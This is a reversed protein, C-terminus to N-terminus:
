KRAKLLDAKTVIGIAKGRKIILVARNNGLLELLTRYTATEQITPFSEGMVERVKLELVPKQGEYSSLFRVISDESVSGILSGGELVPMQDINKRGMGHLVDKLKEDPHAFVVHQNMIDRARVESARELNELAEFIRKVTNYGPDILGTEIKAVTSQSVGALRALQKQTMSAHVRMKKIESLEPLM